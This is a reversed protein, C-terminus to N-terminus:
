HFCLVQLCWLLIVANSTSVTTEELNSSSAISSTHQSPPDRTLTLQIWSLGTAALFSSLLQAKELLYTLLLRLEWLQQAIGCAQQWWWEWENILLALLWSLEVVSGTTCMGCLSTKIKLFLLCSPLSVMTLFPVGRAWPWVLSGHASSLEFSLTIGKRSSWVAEKKYEHSLCGWKKVRLVSGRSQWLWM